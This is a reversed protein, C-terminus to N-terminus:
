QGRYRSWGHRASRTRSSRWLAFASSNRQKSQFRCGTRRAGDQSETKKKSARQTDQVGLLIKALDAARGNNSIEM